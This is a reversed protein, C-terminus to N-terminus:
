EVDGADTSANDNGIRPATSANPVGGHTAPERASNSAACTTICAQLAMLEDHTGREVIRGQELVKIVDADRV